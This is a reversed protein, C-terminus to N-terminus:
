EPWSVTTRRVPRLAQEAPPDGSPAILRLRGGVRLVITDRPDGPVLPGRWAQVRDYRQAFADDYPVLSDLETLRRGTHDYLGRWGPGDCVLLLESDRGTWNVAQANQCVFGPQFRGLRTGDAAYIGTVGYSGWRCSAITQVDSRGPVVRGARVAQVHGQPHVAILEGTRADAVLHGASSSAMHVTPPSDPGAFFGMVSSDVHGGNPCKLRAAVDEQAWLIRGDADILSAGAFIEERGDGDVDCASVHNGHGTGSITEVRWRLSLDPDFAWIEKEDASVTMFFQRAVGAGDLDATESPCNGTGIRKDSSAQPVEASRLVKGTAGDVIALEDGMAVLEVPEGPEGGLPVLKGVKGLKAKWIIEGDATLLAHTAEDPANHLDVLLQPETGGAFAGIQVTANHRVTRSLDGLDSLDIDRVVQPEPLATEAAPSPQPFRRPISEITFETVVSTCTARVGAWGDAYAYDTATFLKHGDLFARFTSGRMELQLTYATWVDLHVQARAVPLWQHDDRRYLVVHSPYELCLYYYRRLDRMRAVIGTWPRVHEMNDGGFGATLEELAFTGTLVCDAPPQTRALVANDYWLHWGKQWVKEPVRKEFAFHLGKNGNFFRDVLIFSEQHHWVLPAEWDAFARDNHDDPNVRDFVVGERAEAIPLALHFGSM